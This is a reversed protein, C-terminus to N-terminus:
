WVGPKRVFRGQALGVEAPFGGSGAAQDVALGGLLPHPPAVVGRARGGEVLSDEIRRALRVGTPEGQLTLPQCYVTLLGLRNGYLIDTM